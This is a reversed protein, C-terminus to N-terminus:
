VADVGEEIEEGVWGPKGDHILDAYLKAGANGVNATTIGWLRSAMPGIARYVQPFYPQYAAEDVIILSATAGRADAEAFNQAVGTVTSGTNQWTIVNMPESSIPMLRQVWQPMRLHPKRIKDNIMKVASDEKVRSVFVEREEYRWNYWRVLQCAHTTAYVQRAKDILHFREPGFLEATVDKLYAFQPQLGPFPKWADLDDREDVTWIIPTGDLDRATLFNWVADAISLGTTPGDRWSDVLALRRQIERDNTGVSDAIVDRWLGRNQQSKSLYPV